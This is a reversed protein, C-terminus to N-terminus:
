QLLHRELYNAYLQCRPRADLIADGGLVGASRLRFFSQHDPCPRGRLVERLADTLKQDRAALVLLRRLHDGFFGEDRDAQGEFGTIDMRQDVLERLGRRTLYPQGALLRFFRAVASGSPLPSGYRVNLDAVQEFTFDQLTLRTGVNFPSQNIDTIFLNAETAYVIALTLRSWPGEPDLARANHWSRFLGFVESGFGCTFLRDVEDMAWVLPAASKPLVERRLFREFNDNPGLHERWTEEPDRDLELQDAIRSGLALYFSKVNELHAANLTQFDTVAVRFGSARAQVLARSLLSTKGMQRAGKLLLVSDRRGIAQYFENDAPRVVYFRSDLPVAGGEQELSPQLLSQRIGRSHGAQVPGALARQLNEILAQNDQPGRWLFYQLPDLVAAMEAPLAGLYDVRVPLLRPKGAQAQAAEHSARVEYAMMESTVSAASILPIVVDSARLQRVIEKAWEIGVPLHRDIFVAHGQAKLQTELWTLVQEDPEGHRKYLIAFNLAKPQVFTQLTAEVPVDTGRASPRTQRPTLKRIEGLEAPRVGAQGTVFAYLQAYSEEADLVYRTHGSLPEPIFREDKAACIAPVFKVTDSRANYIDLTILQGEWDAGKGKGPEEHGRFRRYYTETCILLVFDAWDIKDLMWRPWGEHPTGIVYQDIQADIGDRRLREALNLVGDANEASDHSYSIFVRPPTQAM